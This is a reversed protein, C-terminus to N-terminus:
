TLPGLTWYHMKHLDCCLYKWLFALALCYTFCYFGTKSLFVANSPLSMLISSLEIGFVALALPCKYDLLVTPTLINWLPHMM